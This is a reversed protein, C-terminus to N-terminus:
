FQSQAFSTTSPLYRNEETSSITDLPRYHLHKNRFGYNFASRKAVIDVNWEKIGNDYILYFSNLEDKLKNVSCSSNNKLNLIKELVDAHQVFTIQDSYHHKRYLRSIRLRAAEDGFIMNVQAIKVLWKKDGHLLIDFLNEIIPCTVTVTVEEGSRIRGFQPSVNIKLNHHTHVKYNANIIFFLFDSGINKLLFKSSQLKADYFLYPNKTSIDYGVNIHMQGLGGYGYLGIIKKYKDSSKTRRIVVSTAIQGIRDPKFLVSLEYTQQPELTITFESVVDQCHFFKFCKNAASDNSIAIVLDESNVLTSLKLTCSCIMSDGLQICPWSLMKHTSDVLLDDQELSLNKTSIPMDKKTETLMLDELIHEIDTTSATPNEERIDRIKQAIEAIKPLGTLRTSNFTTSSSLDLSDRTSVSSSNAKRIGSNDLWSLDEKSPIINNERRLCQFLSDEEPMFNRAFNTSALIGSFSVDVNSISGYNDICEAEDRDLASQTLPNGFDITSENISM